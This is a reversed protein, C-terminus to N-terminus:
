WTMGGRAAGAWSGDKPGTGLFCLGQITEVNAMPNYGHEPVEGRGGCVNCGGMQVVQGHCSCGGSGDCCESLWEGAGNCGPCTIWAASRDDRPQM